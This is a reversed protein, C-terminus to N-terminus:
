LEYDAFVLRAVARSVAVDDGTDALYDVWVDRGLRETLTRGPLTAGLNRAVRDLLASPDDPTMWDRSDIDETASASAVLHQLHAWFSRVGFWAVGRPRERGRLFRRHVAGGDPSPRIPPAPGPAGSAAPPSETRIAM